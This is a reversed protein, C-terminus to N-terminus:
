PRWWGPPFIWKPNTHFLGWALIAMALLVLGLAQNRRFVRTQEERRAKEAEQEFHPKIRHPTMARIELEAQTRSKPEGRV